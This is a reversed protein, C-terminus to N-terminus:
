KSVGFWRAKITSVPTKRCTCEKNPVCKHGCAHQHKNEARDSGRLKAYISECRDYNKMCLEHFDGHSHEPHTIIFDMSRSIDDVCKGLSELVAVSAQEAEEDTMTRRGSVDPILSDVCIKASKLDEETRIMGETLRDIKSGGTKNSAYSNKKM